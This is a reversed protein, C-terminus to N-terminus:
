QIKKEKIKTRFQTFASPMNTVNPTVDSKIFRSLMVEFGLAPPPPM